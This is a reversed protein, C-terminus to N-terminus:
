YNEDYYGGHFMCDVAENFDTFLRGDVVIDCKPDDVFPVCCVEVLAYGTTLHQLFMLANDGCEITSFCKNHHQTINLLTKAGTSLMDKSLSMGEVFKSEFLTDSVRKAGDVEKLIRSTITDNPINSYGVFYVDNNNVVPINNPVKDRSTYVTLSM